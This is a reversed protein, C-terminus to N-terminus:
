PAVQPAPVTDSASPTVPPLSTEVQPEPDYIDSMYNEPMPRNELIAEAVRFYKAVLQRHINATPSQRDMTLPLSDRAIYMLYREAFSVPQNRTRRDIDAIMPALEKDVRKKLRDWEEEGALARRSEVERWLESLKEYNRKAYNPRPFYVYLLGLGVILGLIAFAKRKRWLRERIPVAAIANLGASLTPFMEWMQDLKMLRLVDLMDTSATCLGVRGGQSRVQQNLQVLSGLIISGFYNGNGLDVILHKVAPDRVITTITAMESNVAQGSFGAADGRPKVVLTDGVLDVLYVRHLRTPELLSM